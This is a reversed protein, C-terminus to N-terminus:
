NEHSNYINTKNDIAKTLNINFQTSMFDMLAASCGLDRLTQCDHVITLAETLFSGFLSCSSKSTLAKVLYRIYKAVIDLMMNNQDQYEQSIHDNDKIAGLNSILTNLLKMIM